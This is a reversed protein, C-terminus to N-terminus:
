QESKEQERISSRRHIIDDEFDDQQHQVYEQLRHKNPTLTLGLFKREKNADKYFSIMMMIVVFSFPLASIIAASQIANLAKAGDGGGAFLLVFAILSQAIGWTVKVVNSPELSGYTTQMGLVFTASDASTIFFSAILVLAIISLVMGLPIHNFVGFLQTEATMKFLEPHKKGTEIGLVGFVSFWVFSVLAPVLLVGAIFERISRGKSVRAIFIGVFPSWSLWWGWYYLTWSSMWERKQPNQAATDFTNLLFSNLLSGTSSTMMNLILVTPGIILVAIMLIAGLSINLNSLYQIGKSLGSWASMIFLITVVVIIIAQVWVNNPIGFLYNLGGNIQLAGMGLSVAVGVVTAFVALVDIITGIPGEVKNGLLPRLTRSILGAEGKRFQAYALALAVVGYIAWAHFGWHFFTSRLAETYAATTKPDANPPSAFDAMPEAAGYFVLGIGMGASFLMAFWSVTNFEPKDNPKGLKLKGIPSFILFICFFVIFTTLILYYWGLKETIWLKINNTITDFQEPLIAGILVVIAVIIASYIFVPSIKRGNAHKESSNM